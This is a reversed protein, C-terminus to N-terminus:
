GNDLRNIRLPNTLTLSNSAASCNRDPAVVDVHAITKLAEALAKIGPAYVGDDNSVLLRM